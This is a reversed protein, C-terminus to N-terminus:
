NKLTRRYKRKKKMRVHSFILFAKPRKLLPKLELKPEGSTYNYQQLMRGVGSRLDIGSTSM